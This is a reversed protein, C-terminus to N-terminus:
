DPVLLALERSIAAEDLGDYDDRNFTVMGGALEHWTFGSTWAPQACTGQKRRPFVYLQGATYLLNYPTEREHLEHIYAWASRADSFTACSGPYPMTGGNHHWQAHMVPFGAPKLFMQFHLHNVSAFAGLSNYGFGVGELTRALELTAEWVYFHHAETLYQSLCSEREPVLLGHFDVFPYKNYYLTAHRGCLEGSWFAEKQMFGKNFHFGAEDFPAHLHEPIRATIRKPRFSRLHNFQVEWLGAQRKETPKLNEMGVAHIKLFVLLDEEVAQIERGDRLAGVIERYLTEYQQNLQAANAAHLHHDFTANACVLIFPGLGGKQLLGTLGAEFAHCFTTRSTFPSFDEMANM